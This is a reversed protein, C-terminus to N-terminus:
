YRAAAAAVLVLSVVHICTIRNCMRALWPPYKYRLRVAYLVVEGIDM